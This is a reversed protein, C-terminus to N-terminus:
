RCTHRPARPWFQMATAMPLSCAEAPRTFPKMSAEATLIVPGSMVYATHFMDVCFESLLVQAGRREREGHTIASAVINAFGGCGCAQIGQEGLGAWAV